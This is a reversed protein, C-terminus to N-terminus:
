LLGVDETEFMRDGNVITSLTAIIHKYYGIIACTSDYHASWRTVFVRKLSTGEHMRDVKFKKCFKHLLGIQHFFSGLSTIRGVLAVIGLHYRHNFCHVYPVVRGLENQILRQVGGKSGSMSTAGDYCQAVVRKTLKYEEIADLLVSKLSKADLADSTPM